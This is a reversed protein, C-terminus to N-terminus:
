AHVGGSGGGAFQIGALYPLDAQCLSWTQTRSYANASTTLPAHSVKGQLTMVNNKMQQPLSELIGDVTTIRLRIGEM